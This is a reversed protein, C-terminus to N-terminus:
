WHGLFVPADFNVWGGVGSYHESRSFSASM